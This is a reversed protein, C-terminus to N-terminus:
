DDKKILFDELKMDPNSDLLEKIATPTRGSGAWTKSEGNEDVYMYKPKRKFVRDKFIVKPTIGEQEMFIELREKKDKANILAQKKEELLLNLENRIETIEEVSFDKLVIRVQDPSKIHAM